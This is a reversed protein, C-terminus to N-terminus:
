SVSGGLSGTFNKIKLTLNRGAGKNGEKITYGKLTKSLFTKQKNTKEM